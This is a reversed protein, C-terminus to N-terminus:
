FCQPGPLDSPLAPYRDRFMHRVREMRMLGQQTDHKGDWFHCGRGHDTLPDYEANRVCPGARLGQAVAGVCETYSEAWFDHYNHIGKEADIFGSLDDLRIEGAHEIDYTCNLDGIAKSCRGGSMRERCESTKDTMKAEPCPGPLSYWIGSHLGDHYNVSTTTETTSTGEITANEESSADSSRDAVSSLKRVIFEGERNTLHEHASSPAV